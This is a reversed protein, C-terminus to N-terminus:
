DKVCRVSYGNGYPYAENKMGDNTYGVSRVYAEGSGASTSTWWYADKGLGYFGGEVGRYGGPLASFSSANNLDADSGVTNNISSNSWMTGSSLSKATYNGTMRNLDNDPTEDANFGSNQLYIEMSTWEDDTPLHWGSPCASSAAKYNYLVGFTHYSNTGMPVNEVAQSQSYNQAGSIDNGNYGYVYSFPRDELGSDESGMYVDSVNTLYRMNDQMWYQTGIKVYRYINNDRTDTLEEYTCVSMRNGYYLGDSNVAYVKYFVRSCPSLDSIDVNFSGTGSGCEYKKADNFYMTKSVIFGRESIASGDDSLIQARLKASTKTVDTAMLTKMEPGQRRTRFKVIRGYSYVNDVLAYARICYDTEPTLGSLKYEFRCIKKQDASADYESFAKRFGPIQELDANGFSFMMDSQMVDMASQPICIVGTESLMQDEALEYAEGGVFVYKGFIDEARPSRTGIRMFGAKLEIRVTQVTEATVVIRESEGRVPVGEIEAEVIVRFSTNGVCCPTDGQAPDLIYKGTNNIDSFFCNFETMYDEYELYVKAYFDDVAGRSKGVLEDGRYLELFLTATPHMEIPGRHCSVFFPVLCLSMAVVTLRNKIKGCKFCFVKHM